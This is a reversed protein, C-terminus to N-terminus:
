QYTKIKIHKTTQYTKCNILKTKILKTTQYTKYNSLNQSSLNQWQYTKFLYTKQHYTKYQNRYISLYIWFDWPIRVIRCNQQFLKTCNQILIEYLLILVKDWCHYFILFLCFGSVSSEVPALEVIVKRWHQQLPGLYHNISKNFLSYM